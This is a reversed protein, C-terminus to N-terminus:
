LGGHTFLVMMCTSVSFICWLLGRISFAFYLGTGFFVWPLINELLLLLMVVAMAVPSNSISWNSDNSFASAVYLVTQFTIHFVLFMTMTMLLFLSLITLPVILSTLHQTEPLSLWRDNGGDLGRSRGAYGSGGEGHHGTGMGDRIIQFFIKDLAEVESTLWNSQTGNSAADKSRLEAWQVMWLIIRPLEESIKTTFFHVCLLVITIAYLQNTPMTNTFTYLFFQFWGICINKIVLFPVQVISTWSMSRPMIPTTTEVNRTNTHQHESRSSRSNAYDYSEQQAHISSDPNAVPPENRGDTPIIRSPIYADPDVTEGEGSATEARPTLVANRTVTSLSSSNMISSNSEDTSGGRRLRFRAIPEMVGSSQVAM